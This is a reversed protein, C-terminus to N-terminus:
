SGAVFSLFIVFDLPIEQLFGRASIHHSSCFSV